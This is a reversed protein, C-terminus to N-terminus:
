GDSRKDFHFLNKTVRVPYKVVGGGGQPPANPNGEKVEFHGGGRPKALPPM